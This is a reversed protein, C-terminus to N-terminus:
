EEDDKIGFIDLLTPVDEEELDQGSILNEVEMVFEKPIAILRLDLSEALYHVTSLRLDKGSEFLSVRGQTTGSLRALEAQSLMLKKRRATLIEHLKKM